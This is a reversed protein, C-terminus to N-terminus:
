PNCFFFSSSYWLVLGHPVEVEESEELDGLVADIKTTQFAEGRPPVAMVATSFRPGQTCFEAPLAM